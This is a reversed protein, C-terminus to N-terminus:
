LLSSKQLVFFVSNHSIDECKELGNGNDLLYTGKWAITNNVMTGNMTVHEEELIPEPITAEEVVPEPKPATATEEMVPELVIEPM